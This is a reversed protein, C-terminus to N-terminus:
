EYATNQANWLDLKFPLEGLTRFLKDIKELTTIDSNQEKLKKFEKAVRESAELGILQQDLQIVLSKAESILQSLTEVETEEDVLLQKIKANLM